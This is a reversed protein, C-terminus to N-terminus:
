RGSLAVPSRLSGAAAAAGHGRDQNSGHWKRGKDDNTGLLGARVVASGATRLATSARNLQDFDGDGAIRWETMEAKIGSATPTSSPSSTAGSPSPSVSCSASEGHEGSFAGLVLILLVAGLTGEIRPLTM